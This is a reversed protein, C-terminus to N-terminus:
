LCRYVHISLYFSVYLSLSLSLGHKPAKAPRALGGEQGGEEVDQAALPPLPTELLPPALDTRRTRTKEAGLSGQARKALKSSLDSRRTHYIIATLRAHCSSTLGM